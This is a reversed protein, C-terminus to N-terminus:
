LLERILSGLLKVIARPDDGQTVGMIVNVVKKANPRSVGSGTLALICDERLQDSLEQLKARAKPSELNPEGDDGLLDPDLDYVGNRANRELRGIDM